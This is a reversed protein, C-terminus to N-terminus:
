THWTGKGDIWQVDCQFLEVLKSNPFSSFLFCFFFRSSHCFYFFFLPPCLFICGRLGCGSTLAFDQVFPKTRLSASTLVRISIKQRTASLIRSSSNPFFGRLPRFVTPSPCMRSSVSSLRSPAVSASASAFEARSQM